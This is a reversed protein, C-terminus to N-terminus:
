LLLGWLGVFSFTILYDGNLAECNVSLAFFFLWFGVRSEGNEEMGGVVRINLGLSFSLCFTVIKM